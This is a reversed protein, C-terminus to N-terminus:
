RGRLMTLLERPVSISLAKRRRLDSYLISGYALIILRLYSLAMRMKGEATEPDVWDIASSYGDEDDSVGGHGAVVVIM